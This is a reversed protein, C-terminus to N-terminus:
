IHDRVLAIVQGLCACRQGEIGQGAPFAGLSEFM